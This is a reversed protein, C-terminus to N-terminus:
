LLGRSKHATTNVAAGTCILGRQIIKFERM